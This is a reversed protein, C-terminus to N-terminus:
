INHFELHTEFYLTWVFVFLLMHWLCLIQTRFQQARRFHRLQLIYDKCINEVQKSLSFDRLFIVSEVLFESVGLM